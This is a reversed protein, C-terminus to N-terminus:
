ACFIKTKRMIKDIFSRFFSKKVSKLKQALVAKKVILRNYEENGEDTKLKEEDFNKIKYALFNVTKQTQENSNEM